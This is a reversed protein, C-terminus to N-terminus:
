SKNKKRAKTIKHLILKRKVLGLRDIYVLGDLHDIEHQICKAMFGDVELTIPKGYRDLAQIKIREARVVRHYGMNLLSMCGEHTNTEGHKEIIYPNVLCLPQNKDESFDIVTVRYPFGLQNAALAACDKQAYHTEFMDDVMKQFDDGFDTVEKTKKSLVPNPYQLIELIAM